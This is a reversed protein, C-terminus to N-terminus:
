YTYLCHLPRRLRQGIILWAQVRRWTPRASRFLREVPTPRAALMRIHTCLPLTHAWPSDCPFLRAGIRLRIHSDIVNTVEVVRIATLHQAIQRLTPPSHPPVM